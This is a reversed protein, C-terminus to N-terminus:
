TSCHNCPVDMEGVFQTLRAACAAQSSEIGRNGSVNNNPMQSSVQPAPFLMALAIAAGIGLKRAKSGM